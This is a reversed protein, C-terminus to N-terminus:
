LKAAERLRQRSQDLLAADANFGQAAQALRQQDGTEMATALTDLSTRYGDTANRLLGAAERLSMDAAGSELTLLEDTASTIRQDILAWRRALESDTDRQAAPLGLQQSRWRVLPDDVQSRVWTLQGEARSALERDSSSGRGRLAGILGAVLAVGVAGLFIWLWYRPTGEDDAAAAPDTPEPTPEPTAEPTPEPSPQPTPEPQEPEATADPTSTPTSEPTSPAAQTSDSGTAEPALSEVASSLADGVPSDEGCATM